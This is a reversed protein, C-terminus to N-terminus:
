MYSLVINELNYHLGTIFAFFIVTDSLTVEFETGPVQYKWAFM